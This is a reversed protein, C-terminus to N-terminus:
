QAAPIGDAKAINSRINDCLGQFKALEEQTLPLELVQELGNKGIVAPVGAFIDRQGYHGQLPASVPLIVKEDHLVARVMRAATSAIGYETCRKGSYTVYGGAIARRQLEEKDFLFPAGKKEMEALPVGQFTVCSWAAMQSAGHEGIMYACISRHDLGTQQALESVLRSTDLGTGTGFVRGLPLGSLQAVRHTVVDCPNTISIIVGSFGSAMVPGMMAKVQGISYTMENLRDSASLAIDGVANILVDCDGLDGYGGASITVRHPCYLVADRLDQCESILKKENRDVLVLEDVTGQAILSYACHAGVHGLGLIGVKRTKLSVAVVGGCCREKTREASRRFAEKAFPSLPRRM